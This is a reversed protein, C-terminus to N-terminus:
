LTSTSFIASSSFDKNFFAHEPAYLFHILGLSKAIFALFVILRMDQKQHIALSYVFEAVSAVVLWKAKVAEEQLHARGLCCVAQSCQLFYGISTLGWVWNDLSQRPVWSLFPLHGMKNAYFSLQILNWAQLYYPLCSLDSLVFIGDSLAQLWPTKKLPISVNQLDIKHPDFNKDPNAELFQTLWRCLFSKVEEQTRCDQDNEVMEELLAKLQEKAFQRVNSDRKLGQTDPTGLCWNHCLAVELQDLMAYEDIRQPTYSYLFYRPLRYFGYFDFTQAADLVTVLRPLYHAHFYFNIGQIISRVIIFSDQLAEPDQRIQDLQIVAAAFTRKAFSLYGPAYSYTQLNGIGM